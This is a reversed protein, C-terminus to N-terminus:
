TCCPAPINGTMLWSWLFGLVGMALVATWFYITLDRRQRISLGDYVFWAGAGGAILVLIWIEAPMAEKIPRPYRM